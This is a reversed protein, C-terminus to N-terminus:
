IRGHYLDANDVMSLFPKLNRYFTDKTIIDSQFCIRQHHDHVSQWPPPPTPLRDCHGVPLSMLKNNISKKIMFGIGSLRRDEKSKGSWYLTYGAGHETLSGEEPFRVESLAAIDIDLKALEKAM